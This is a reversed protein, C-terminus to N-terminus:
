GAALQLAPGRGTRSHIVHVAVTSSLISYRGIHCNRDSKKGDEHNAIVAKGQSSVYATPAPHLKIKVVSPTLLLGLVWGGRLSRGLVLVFQSASSASRLRRCCRYYGYRTGCWCHDHRLVAAAGVPPRVLLASRELRSSWAMGTCRALSTRRALRSISTPWSGGAPWLWATQPRRSCVPHARSALYAEARWVSFSGSRDTTTRGPCDGADCGHDSIKGYAGRAASHSPGLLWRRAANQLSKAM